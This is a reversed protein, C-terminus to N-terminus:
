NPKVKCYVFITEAKEYKLKKSAGEVRFISAAPQESVDPKDM